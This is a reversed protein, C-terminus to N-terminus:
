ENLLRGALWGSRLHPLSRGALSLLAPFLSLQAAGPSPPDLTLSSVLFGSIAGRKKQEFTHPEREAREAEKGWSQGVVGSPFVDM